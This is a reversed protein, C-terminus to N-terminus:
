VKELKKKVKQFIIGCTTFNRWWFFCECTPNWFIRIEKIVQRWIQSLGRASSPWNVSRVFDFFFLGKIMLRSDRQFWHKKKRRIKCGFFFFFLPTSNICLNGKQSFSGLDGYKSSLINSNAM